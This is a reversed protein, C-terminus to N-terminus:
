SSTCPGVCPSARERLETALREVAPAIVGFCTRFYEPSLTHPDHIHYRRPQAWHGLLAIRDTAIGHEVLRNAHRLEMVLFLDGPEPEFDALDTARHAELSVGFEPAILRAAENAPVGTTTSLGISACRLGRRAAVAHAFASRNINGLCVFVLREVRSPDVTRFRGPPGYAAELQGLLYRIWGRHTGYRGDIYGRARALPGNM